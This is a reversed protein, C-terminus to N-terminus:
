CYDPSAREASSRYRVCFVPVMGACVGAGFRLGTRHGDDLGGHHIAEVWPGLKYVDQHTDVNM